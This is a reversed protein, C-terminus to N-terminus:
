SRPAARPAASEAALGESLRFGGFIGDPDEEEYVLGPPPQLDRRRLYALSAAIAAVIVVVMALILPRRIAVAELNALSYAYTTFAAIYFPWLTRARSRGPYYTCAFPIKRLGVLLVDALLVGLAGTFIAHIAGTRLGWLAVGMLAAALAIPAVVALLLATRAGGIATAMGDDAAHVRFTWNAKIETPIGFLARMGCLMFFNLVLPASLLAVRPTDFAGMGSRAVVSTVASLVLAAGVGAYMALLMLHTRSRTITRLTFGAVARQVPNRVFVRALLDLGRGRLRQGLQVRGGETELAMRVLRRYSGALLLTAILVTAATAIVATAAYMAPAARPAGALLDYLALFWASPLLAVQWRGEGHFADRVLSGLYPVFLLAQLLAVVFVMQLALALGHATRRGFVNLLVGQISILLFFVFMGGAATAILHAAVARLPGDAAEYSWVVPGFAIASPLNVGVSFLGGVAALAALRGVVHTRTRLPLVGLLRVDRRDPFVGEWVILAVLGLAMMGFTVFLLEDVLISDALRARADRWLRAYKKELQFSLMFGPAALFAISWIVLQVQPLGPPMLDSEFFRGFFTRALLLETRFARV